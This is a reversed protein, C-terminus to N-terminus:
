RDTALDLVYNAQANTELAGPRVARIAAIAEAPAMGMEVLLRAGITGARGLGGRCHVVVGGGELLIQRLAAGHTAWAQEFAATPISVDTIPLHHWSMGRRVVGEGLSPVALELLEQPEVLTLLAQAGWARIADLDLDLDRDWAGTMAHLDRKGPCFTVGIKGGTSSVPVTAIQLPHSVSTRTRQVMDPM